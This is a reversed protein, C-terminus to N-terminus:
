AEEIIPKPSLVTYEADECIQHATARAIEAEHVPVMDAYQEARLDDAALLAQIKKKNKMYRRAVDVAQEENKNRYEKTIVIYVEERTDSILAFVSRLDDDSTKSQKAVRAQTKVIDATSASLKTQEIMQSLLSKDKVERDQLRKLVDAEDQGGKKALAAALQTQISPIAEKSM